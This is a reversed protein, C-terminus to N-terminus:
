GKEDTSAYDDRTEGEEFMFTSFTMDETTDRQTGQAHVLASYVRDKM